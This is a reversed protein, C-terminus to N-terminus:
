MYELFFDQVGVSYRIKLDIAIQKNDCVCMKICVHLSFLFTVSTGSGVQLYFKTVFCYIVNCKTILM